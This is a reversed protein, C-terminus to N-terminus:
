EPNRALWADYWGRAIQFTPLPEPLEGRERAAAMEQLDEETFVLGGEEVVYLSELAFGLETLIKLENLIEAEM